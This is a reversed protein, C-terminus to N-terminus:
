ENMNNNRKNKVFRSIKIRKNKLRKFEQNKYDKRQNREETNRSEEFKSEKSDELYHLLPSFSTRSDVIV